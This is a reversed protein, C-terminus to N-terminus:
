FLSFCDFLIDFYKGLLLSPPDRIEDCKGGIDIDM